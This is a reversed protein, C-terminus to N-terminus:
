AVRNKKTTMYGKRNLEIKQRIDYRADPMAQKMMFLCKSRFRNDDKRTLDIISM